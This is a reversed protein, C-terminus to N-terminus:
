VHNDLSALRILAEILIDSYIMRDAGSSLRGTNPNLGRRDRVAGARAEVFVTCRRGDRLYAHSLINKSM